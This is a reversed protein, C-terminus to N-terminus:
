FALRSERERKKGKMGSGGKGFENWLWNGRKEREKERRGKSRERPVEACWEVELSCTEVGLEVLDWDGEERRKMGRSHSKVGM